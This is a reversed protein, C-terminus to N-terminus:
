RARISISIVDSYTGGRKDATNGIIFNVPLSDQRIGRKHSWSVTDTGRLKIAKGGIAMDYPILWDSAGLRLNGSNASSVSIDYRGTSSVRLNLPVPAPGPRLQGLDVLAQGDSVRYAGALGIRASPLVTLGLVIPSGGFSRFTNDQAELVIDQTFRGSSRIQSPDVVMRYLFSRSERPELTIQRAKSRLQSRGARPTVDQSQTLNILAYPIRTGSGNSLGFPPQALEFNPSFRCDASGQNLFTVSFTAEALDNGFPDFGDIIWSSPSPTVAVQCQARPRDPATVGQAHANHQPLLTGAMLLALGATVARMLKTSYTTIM